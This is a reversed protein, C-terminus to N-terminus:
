IASQEALISQIEDLADSDNEETAKTKADELLQIAEARKGIEILREALGIQKTHIPEGHFHQSQAIALRYLKEASSADDTFDALAEILFPDPNGSVCQESYLAELRYFSVALAEGDDAEVANVLASSIELVQSYLPEPIRRMAM